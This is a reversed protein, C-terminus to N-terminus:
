FVRVLPVCLDGLKSLSSKKPPIPWLETVRLLIIIGLQYDGGYSLFHCIYTGKEMLCMSFNPIFTCISKKRSLSLLYFINRIFTYAVFFKLGFFLQFFLEKEREREKKKKDQGAPDGWSSRRHGSFHFCVTKVGWSDPFDRPFFYEKYGSSLCSRVLDEFIQILEWFLLFFIM